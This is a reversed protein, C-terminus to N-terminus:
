SNKVVSIFIARLKASTITERAPKEARVSIHANFFGNINLNTLTYEMDLNNFNLNNISYLLMPLDNLNALTINYTITSNLNPLTINNIITNKSYECEYEELGGNTASNVNCNTIRIDSSIKFKAEGSINLSTTMSSYGVSIFLIFFIILFYLWNLKFTAKNPLKFYNYKKM